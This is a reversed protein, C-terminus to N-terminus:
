KRSEQVERLWGSAKARHSMAVVTRAGYGPPLTHGKKAKPEIEDARKLLFTAEDEFVQADEPTLPIM